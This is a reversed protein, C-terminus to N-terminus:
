ECSDFYYAYAAATAIRDVPHDGFTQLANLKNSYVCIGLCQKFGVGGGTHADAVLAGV